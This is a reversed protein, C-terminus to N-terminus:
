RDSESVGIGVVDADAYPLADYNSTCLTHLCQNVGRIDPMTSNILMNVASCDRSCVGRRRSAFDSYQLEIIELLLSM